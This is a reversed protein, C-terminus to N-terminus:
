TNPRALYGNHTNCVIISAQVMSPLVLPHFILYYMFEYPILKEIRLNVNKTWLPVEEELGAYVFLDLTGLVWYPVWDLVAKSM